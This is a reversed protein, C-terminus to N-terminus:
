QYTVRTTRIHIKHYHRFRCECGWGYCVSPSIHAHLSRTPLVAAAVTINITDAAWIQMVAAVRAVVAGGGSTGATVTACVDGSEGEGEGEGVGEGEGNGNGDGAADWMTAWREEEKESESEKEEEAVGTM